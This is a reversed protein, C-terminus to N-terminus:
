TSGGYLGSEQSLHRELLGVPAAYYNRKSKEILLQKSVKWVSREKNLRITTLEKSGDSVRSRTLPVENLAIM